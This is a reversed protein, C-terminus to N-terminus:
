ASVEEKIEKWTKAKVSGWTKTVTSNWKNYMIIISFTMNYPLMRELAESISLEQKRAALAVRVEVNLDATMINLTYGGKGCLAELYEELKRRTYPTTEAYLSQLHFRRDDLTDTAYPTINFMAERRAIGSESAESLFQDNMCAEAANWLAQVETTEADMITRMEDVDKLVSPLYSKLDITRINNFNRM